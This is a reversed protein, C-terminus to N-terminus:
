GNVTEDRSSKERVAWRGRMLNTMEVAIFLIWLRAIKGPARCGIVGCVSLTV